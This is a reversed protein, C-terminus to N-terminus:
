ETDRMLEQKDRKENHKVNTVPYVFITALAFWFVTIGFVAAYAIPVSVSKLGNLLAGTVVPSIVQPLVFALHWIGMDKAVNAGPPLVDLAFAWDVAQYAGYGLGIFAAMALSVYISPYFCVVCLVACGLAMIATSVWVMAKRGTRDSVKGAIITAPISVIVITAVTISSMLVYKDTKIVDQYYYQFFPLISYVGMDELFRTVIVWYFDKYIKPDLYFEKALKRLSFKERPPPRPVEKIGFITLLAFPIFLAFLYLYVKWFNDKDVLFGAGLSGVLGGIATALGLWGSALGYLKKPVLDPMLGAYPGGAWQQGFQVGMILGCLIWVGNQGSSANLMPMMLFFSCGIISGTVIFIKRRGIKNTSFDSLAGAIPTVLLSVLAGFSPIFGNYLDKKGSDQLIAEIQAPWVVATVTSVLITYACWWGALRIFFWNGRWGSPVTITYADQESTEDQEEAYASNPITASGRGSLDDYEEMAGYSGM